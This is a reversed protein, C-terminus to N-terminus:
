PSGLLRSVTSPIVPVLPLVVVAYRTSAPRAAAPSPVPRIPVTCVRVRPRSASPRGVTVPNGLTRVVGSAGARCASSASMAADPTEATTM